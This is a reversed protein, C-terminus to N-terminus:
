CGETTQGGSWRHATHTLVNEVALPRQETGRVVTRLVKCARWWACSWTRSFAKVYLRTIERMRIPTSLPRPTAFKGFRRRPYCPASDRGSSLSTCSKVKHVDAWLWNNWTESGPMLTQFCLALPVPFRRCSCSACLLGQLETGAHSSTISPEISVLTCPFVGGVFPLRLDGEGPCYAGRCSRWGDDGPDGSVYPGCSAICGIGLGASLLLDDPSMGKVHGACGFSTGVAITHAREWEWPEPHKMGM